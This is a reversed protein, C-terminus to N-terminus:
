EETTDVGLGFLAFDGKTPDEPFVKRLEETLKRANAMSTSKSKLLGMKISETVVHVDMPIILSDQAIIDNWIGLDVPSERRVMWRLFMCVRKCSSSCDKPIVGKSGHDKFWTTIADIAELASIRGGCGINCTSILFHKMSGYETVMAALADLFTRFTHYSYLRYFSDKTDPFMVKYRGKKLWESAAKPSPSAVNKGDKSKSDWLRIDDLIKQIKPLFQKRSGYSLASAIFAVLEKNEDGEIQHMLWSPDGNIFEPKEYKQALLQLTNM